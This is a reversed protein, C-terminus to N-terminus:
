FEITTPGMEVRLIAKAGEVRASTYTVGETFEPLDFTLTELGEEPAIVLRGSDVSVAAATEVNGDASSVVARGNKLDVTAPVGRDRLESNLEGASLTATGQGRGVGVRREDGSLIQGLSFRVDEFQLRVDRLDIGQADVEDAVVIVSAFDGQVARVVFPWGKVTVDPRSSLDLSSQMAAEMRSEAVSKVILDGILLVAILLVLVILLARGIEKM